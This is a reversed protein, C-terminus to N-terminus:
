VCLLQTKISATKGGGLRLTVDQEHQNGTVDCDFISDASIGARHLQLAVLNLLQSPYAKAHGLVKETCTDVAAYVFQELEDGTLKLANGIKRAQYEGIRRNGNQLGSILSEPVGALRALDNNTLKADIRLNHLQSAFQTTM